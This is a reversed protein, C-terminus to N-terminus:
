CCAPWCAPLGTSRREHCLQSRQCADVALTMYARMRSVLAEGCSPSYATTTRRQRSLVTCRVSGCCLHSRVPCDMREAHSRVAFWVWGFSAIAGTDTRLKKKQIRRLMLGVLLPYGVMYVMIGVVGFGFYISHEPSDCVIGPYAALVRQGDELEECRFVSTSYRSVALYVQAV